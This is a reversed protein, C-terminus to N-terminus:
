AMSGEAVVLGSVKGQRRAIRGLGDYAAYKFLESLTPYNYVADIFVDITGGMQLVTMGIHVLESAREGVIHVGQLVRTDPHFVIKLLGETAGVLMARANQAYDALGIEYPTGAAKLEQETSGIMGCEPITYIGYPLHSGLGQKYTFGFAHCVAVRGQDMTTSALAPFGIVDGVAYINPVATRYHADVQLLGRKDATLGVRELGLDRTNGTRGAAYLVRETRLETGDALVTLVEDGQVEIRTYKANTHIKVGRSTFAQLLRETVADDVFPLIRDRPELLLVEVGLTAFMSAYECGIVGAGYVMLSRPISAMDVVEDSDWILEQDFEIDAPRHPSTGTAILIVEAGLDRVVGDEAIVRVTHTDLLEARGHLLDVDHRQLNQLIRTVEAACVSEKRALLEDVRIDQALSVDVGRLGLRALNALALASERLGKSPLTGTHVCAGGVTDRDIVVVKKGFWAAQAAAKEGGPGCGIIVLDNKTM